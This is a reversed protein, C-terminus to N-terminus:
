FFDSVNILFDVLKVLSKSPWPLGGCDRLKIHKENHHLKHDDEETPRRGISFNHMRNCNNNSLVNKNAHKKCCYGAICPFHMTKRILM